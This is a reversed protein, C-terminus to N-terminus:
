RASASRGSMPSVRSVCADMGRNLSSFAVQRRPPPPPPPSPLPTPTGPLHSHLPFYSLNTRLAVFIRHIMEDDHNWLSILHLSPSTMVHWIKPRKGLITSTPTVDHRSGAAYAPRVLDAGDPLSPHARSSARVDCFCTATSDPGTTGPMYEYTRERRNYQDHTGM